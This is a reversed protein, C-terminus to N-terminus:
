ADARRLNFGHDILATVLGVKGAWAKSSHFIEMREDNTAEKNWWTAAASWQRCLEPIALNHKGAEANFEKGGRRITVVVKDALPRFYIDDPSFSLTRFSEHLALAERIAPHLDKSTV